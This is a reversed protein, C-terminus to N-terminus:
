AAGQDLSAKIALVKDRELLYPPKRRVTPIEGRRIKCRIEHKGWPLLKEAVVESVTLLDRDSSQASAAEAPDSRELGRGGV